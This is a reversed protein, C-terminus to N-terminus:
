LNFGGLAVTEEIFISMENNHLINITSNFIVYFRRRLTFAKNQYETINTAM